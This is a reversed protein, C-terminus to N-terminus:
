RDCHRPTLGTDSSSDITDWRKENSSRSKVGKKILRKSM